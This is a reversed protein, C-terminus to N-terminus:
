YNVVKANLVNDLTVGKLDLSGEFFVVFYSIVLLFVQERSNVKVPVVCLLSAVECHLIVDGVEVDLKVM